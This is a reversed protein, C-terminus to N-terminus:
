THKDGDGRTNAAHAADIADYGVGFNAIVELNPLSDIFTRRFRPRPPSAESAHARMRMWFPSSDGNTSQFRRSSPRSGSGRVRPIFRAPSFFPQVRIANM